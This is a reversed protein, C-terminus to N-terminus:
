VDGGTWRWGRETLVADLREDHREVPVRPVEQAAFGVGVALVTRRRRLLSLTRDYHGKGYGIRYGRGDFALLPVLAVDPDRVPSGLPPQTIGFDASVLPGDAPWIRFELPVDPGMVAPLLATWGLDRLAGLLPRPDIEDRIPWFGSVTGPAKDALVALGAEALAGANDPAAAAAAERRREQAARRLAQKSAPPETM